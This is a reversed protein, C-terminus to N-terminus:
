RSINILTPLNGKFSHNTDYNYHEEDEEEIRSIEKISTTSDIQDINTELDVTKLKFGSPFLIDLLPKEIQFSISKLSGQKVKIESEAFYNLQASHWDSLKSNPKEFNVIRSLIQKLSTNKAFTENNTLSQPFPGQVQGEFSLQIDQLQEDLM